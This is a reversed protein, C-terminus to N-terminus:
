LQIKKHADSLKLGTPVFTRTKQKSYEEKSRYSIVRVFDVENLSQMNFYTLPENTFCNNLAYRIRQIFNVNAKDCLECQLLTNLLLMILLDVKSSTVYCM